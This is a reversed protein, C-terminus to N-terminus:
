THDIEIQQLFEEIKLQAATAKKIMDSEIEADRLIMCTTVRMRPDLDDVYHLKPSEYECLKYPTNVLCFDLYAKPRDYILMYCRLQMEYLPTMARSKLAPFTERSWSTKIDRIYDDTLIDCEGSFLDTKVRGVHKKYNQFNVLNLLAISDDECELGKQIPKMKLEKRFDLAIEHAIDECYTLAGVSLIEGADKAKKTPEAMIKGISSPHLLYM